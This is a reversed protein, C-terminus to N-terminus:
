CLTVVIGSLLGALFNLWSEIQGGESGELPTTTTSKDVSTTSSTTTWTTTSTSSTVSTSTETEHGGREILSGVGEFTDRLGFLTVIGLVAYVLIGGSGADSKM